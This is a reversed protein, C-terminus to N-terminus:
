GPAHIPCIGQAEPLAFQGVAQWYKVFGKPETPTQGDMVFNHFVHMFLQHSAMDWALHPTLLAAPITVAGQDDYPRCLFCDGIWRELFRQVVASRYFDLRTVHFFGHILPIRVGHNHNHCPGGVQSQLQGNVLRVNCLTTNFSDVIRQQVSPGRAAGKPFHDFLITLNHQMVIAVPDRDWVRTCYGDTDMWLMYQYSQLAPHTWLHWARFEAQWNYSLTTPTYDPHPCKSNWHLQQQQQKQLLATTTNTTTTNGAGDNKQGGCDAEFKRRRPPSLAQLVAQLSSSSSRSGGGGGRRNHHNPLDVVVTLKAPAVLARVRRLQYDSVPQITFAVIDYLVRQNYAYHLLCLMTELKHLEQHGQFKTVIVVHEQREFEIIDKTTKKGLTPPLHTTGNNHIPAKNDNNNDNSKDNTNNYDSLFMLIDGFTRYQESQLLATTRQNDTTRSTGRVRMFVTAQLLNGTNLVLVVVGFVAYLYVRRPRRGNAAPRTSM